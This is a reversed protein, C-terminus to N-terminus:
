PKEYINKLKQEADSIAGKIDKTTVAKAFMDVIIYQTQSQQTKRGPKTPWGPWRGIHGGDRFPILKPDKKFVPDDDFAKFPGVNYGRSASLWSSYNNKDMLYLLFAKATDVEKSWKMVAHTWTLNVVFQGKPGAVMLANDTVTDWKKTNLAKIYISAGNLTASIKGADYAQNNDPDLWSLTDQSLYGSNWADVAWKLAAETEKSNITVKSGDDNAEHGGYSWLVPYWFSTADGYAHGLAIAIPPLNKAKLAKGADALEQLTTPFKTMGAQQFIDTRYSFANPVICYPISRYKGNVNAFADSVVDPAGLKGKLYAVENSVDLCSKEFLAPGAYRLQLIDPGDGSEIAASWRTDLQDASVTEITVECGYQDSFARAQRRIEEDAAPVFSNWQLLRIKAGKRPNPPTYTGTTTATGGTSEGGGCAALIPSVGVGAALAAGAKLFRRRNWETVEILSPRHSRDEEM